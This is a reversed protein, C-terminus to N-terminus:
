RDRDELYISELDPMCAILNMAISTVNCKREEGIWVEYDEETVGLLLNDGEILIIRTRDTFVQGQKFVPDAYVHLRYDAGALSSGGLDSKNNMQMQNFQICM